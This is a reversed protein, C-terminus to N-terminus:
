PENQTLIVDDLYIYHQGAARNTIRTEIYLYPPFSGPTFDGNIGKLDWSFSNLLARVYKKNEWDAVLKITNWAHYLLEHTPAGPLDKYGGGSKLYAMTKNYRDYRLQYRWNGDLSWFSLTIFLYKIQLHMAYSLELGIKSEIPLPRDCFIWTDKDITTPSLLKASAAGSRAAETTHQFAGENNYSYHAWRKITGEFDDFWMVNGARDATVPSGLRAALEGVDLISYITQSPAGIGYDPHGHPM